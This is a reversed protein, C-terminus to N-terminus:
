VAIGREELYSIPVFKKIGDEVIEYIDEEISDITDYITQLVDTALVDLKVYGLSDLEIVQNSEGFATVLDDDKPVRAVPMTEYVPKPLLVIGGAHRGVSKIRGQLAPVYQFEKEYQKYFDYAWPNDTKFKEVNEEFSMETLDFSKTFKNSDNFDAKKKRLIDKIVSAVGLTGYTGVSVVHDKGYKEKFYEKVREKGKPSLDSDVDIGSEGGGKTQKLEIPKMLDVEKTLGLLFPIVYRNNIKEKNKTLEDVLDIKNDYAIKARYLEKGLRDKMEPHDAVEKICFKKLEVYDM